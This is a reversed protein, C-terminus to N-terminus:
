VARPGLDLLRRSGAATLGAVFAAAAWSIVLWIGATIAMGGLNELNTISVLGIALGLVLLAVWIILGAVVGTLIGSWSIRQMIMGERANGITNEGTAM